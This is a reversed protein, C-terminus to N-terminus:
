LAGIRSVRYVRIAILHFQFLRTEISEPTDSDSDSYIIGEFLWLLLLLYSGSLLSKIFEPRKGTRHSTGTHQGERSHGTHPRHGTHGAAHATHPGQEPATSQRM